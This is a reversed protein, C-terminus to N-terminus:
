VAFWYRCCASTLIGVGATFVVSFFVGFLLGEMIGQAVSARWVDEVGRWGLVTVFYRPSVEGNVSNTIAGLAASAFVGTIMVAFLTLPRSRGQEPAVEFNGGLRCRIGNTAM